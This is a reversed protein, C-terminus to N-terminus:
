SCMCIIVYTLVYGNSTIFFCSVFLGICISLTDVLSDLIRSYKNKRTHSFTVDVVDTYECVELANELVQLQLRENATLRIPIYQLSIMFEKHKKEDIGKFRLSKTNDMNMAAEDSTEPKQESIPRPTTPEVSMPDDDSDDTNTYSMIHDM